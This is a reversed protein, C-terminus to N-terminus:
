LPECAQGAPPALNRELRQLAAEAVEGEQGLVRSRFEDHAAAAVDRDMVDEAVALPRGRAGGELGAQRGLHHMDLGADGHQAEDLAAGEALGVQCRVEVAQHREELGAMALDAAPQVSRGVHEPYEVDDAVVHPGGIGILFIQRQGVFELPPLHRQRDHEAM